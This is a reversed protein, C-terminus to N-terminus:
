NKSITQWLYLIAGITIAWPMIKKLFKPTKNALIYLMLFVGVIGGFIIFAGELGAITWAKIFGYTAWFFAVFILGVWEIKDPLIEKNKVIRGRVVSSLCTIFLSLLFLVLLINELNKLDM